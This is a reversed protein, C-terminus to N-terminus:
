KRVLLTFEYLGYDHLLAVNRSFNQRCYDFLQMPNAYYLYDKMYEPDSYSTLANFSFGKRSISNIDKLTLIIYELWESNLLLDLKVNFVGSAVTYDVKCDKLSNIFTINPQSKFRVRAHEIMMEAIDYGFYEFSDFYNNKQIFNVLEGYGCGYDLISFPGSSPLIQCLKEFRLYQSDWSNWDVGQPTCGHDTIKKTYYDRVRAIIENNMYYDKDYLFDQGLISDRPISLLRKDVLLVWTFVELCSNLGIGSLSCIAVYIVRLYIFISYYELTIDISFSPNNRSDHIDAVKEEM